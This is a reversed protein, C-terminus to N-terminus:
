CKVLFWEICLTFMKIDTLSSSLIKGASSPLVFQLARNEEAWFRLILQFMGPIYLCNDFNEGASVAIYLM